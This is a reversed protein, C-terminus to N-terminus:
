ISRNHARYSWFNDLIRGSSFRGPLFGSHWQRSSLPQPNRGGRSTLVVFGPLDRSESGLGYTVWSGMSPRGSITSGTNMYTHAPDHNIAETVMSRVICIEDAITRTKPLVESILQGSVGSRLFRFQPALCRLAQGQLQAIPQEATVSRPMPQGHLAALDPKPDFTELHSPGGAMCLFIVRKARPAHHRPAIVGSWHGAQKTSSRNAAAALPTDDQVLSALAASGIGLTSRALFARRFLSAAPEPCRSM